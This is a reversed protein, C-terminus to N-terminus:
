FIRQHLEKLSQNHAVGGVVTIRQISTMLGRGLGLLLM